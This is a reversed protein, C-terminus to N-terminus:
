TSESITVYILEKVRGAGEEQSGIDKRPPSGLGSRDGWGGVDAKQRIPDDEWRPKVHIQGLMGLVCKRGRM